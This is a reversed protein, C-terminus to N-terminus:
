DRSVSRQQFLLALLPMGAAYPARRGPPGKTGAGLAIQWHGSRRMALGGSGLRGQGTGLQDLLLTVEAERGVLPTLGRPSAIDLRSQAGSEGVVRYVQFPTDVGKLAPTGLEDCVFYGQVLHHLAASIVVTNPAALSELRAAVNPTEGLALQERRGGEGVEGVVAPGTHIGIRIALRVSHQQELRIALAGMAELMALGARVARQADDEHAMPYGFYVLLGDGLYQAIHGGFREIVPACAAQYARVAARYDEPDLQRSLATSAVLDCFLITLQRREAEPPAPAVPSPVRQPLAAAPMAPQPAHPSSPTEPGGIWVLISGNEDRAMHQADILEVRIDDLYADDLGFHRQLARYSVRGRSLLLDVVQDLLAYFDM